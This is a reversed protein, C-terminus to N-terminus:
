ALGDRDRLSDWTLISCEKLSEKLLKKSWVRLKESSATRYTISSKGVRSGAKICLTKFEPAAVLAKAPELGIVLAAGGVGAAGTRKFLERRTLKKM